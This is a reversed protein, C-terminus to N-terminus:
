VYEEIAMYKAARERLDDMNNQKKTFLSDLFPGLHSGFNLSHIIVSPSLNSITILVITFREM